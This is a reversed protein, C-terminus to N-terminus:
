FGTEKVLDKADETGHPIAVSNGMFTSTLEERELMKEVYTPEVYGNDVLIKGTFRIAEEKNALKTDLQINDKSLIEKAM